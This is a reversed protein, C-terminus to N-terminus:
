SVIALNKMNNNELEERAAAGSIKFDLDILAKVKPNQKNIKYLEARGITRTKVIIKAKILKEWINEITIRSIGTEEAAQSKSYDFNQYTLFFDLVKVMPSEGFTELFVSKAEGRFCLKRSTSFKIKTCM